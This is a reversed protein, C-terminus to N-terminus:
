CVVARAWPREMEGVRWRDALGHPHAPRWWFTMGHGGCASSLLSAAAQPTDHSLCARPVRGLPRLQLLNAPWAGAPGQPAPWKCGAQSASTAKPEQSHPAWTGGRGRLRACSLHPLLFHQDGSPQLKNLDGRGGPGM